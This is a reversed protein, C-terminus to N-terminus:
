GNQWVGQGKEPDIEEVEEEEFGGDRYLEEELDRIYRQSDRLFSERKEIQNIAKALQLDYLDQNLTYATKLESVKIFYGSAALSIIYFIVTIAITSWVMQIAEINSLISFILGIFFGCVTLFYIFNETRVM